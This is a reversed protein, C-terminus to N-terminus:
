TWNKKGLNIIVYVIVIILIIEPIFFKWYESVARSLRNFTLSGPFSVIFANSKDNTSSCNEFVASKTDVKIFPFRHCVSNFNRQDDDSPELLAADIVQKLEKTYGMYLGANAGIGNQCTGFIKKSCYDLIVEPVIGTIGSVGNLSFLVKCNMSKFARELDSLDKNILSDFGDVFVLIEDDDMTDIYERVTKLKDMFGTWKTGWGLVEIPYGSDMLQDFLGESHTAYTVLKMSFYM